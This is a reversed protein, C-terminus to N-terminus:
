KGCRRCSRSRASDAAIDDSSCAARPFGNSFRCAAKLPLLDILEGPPYEEEAPLEAAENWTV